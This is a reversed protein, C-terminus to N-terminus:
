FVIYLTCLHHYWFKSILSLFLILLTPIGKKRDQLIVESHCNLVTLFMLINGHNLHYIKLSIGFYVM